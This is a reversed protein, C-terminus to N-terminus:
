SFMSSASGKVHCSFPIAGGAGPVSASAAQLADFLASGNSPGVNRSQSGLAQSIMRYYHAWAHTNTTLDRSRQSASHNITFTQLYNSIGFAEPATQAIEAQVLIQEIVLHVTHDKTGLEGGRHYDARRRDGLNQENIKWLPLLRKAELGGNEMTFWLILQASLLTSFPLCWSLSYAM